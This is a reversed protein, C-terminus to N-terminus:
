NTDGSWVPYFFDFFGQQELEKIELIIAKTLDHFGKPTYTFPEKCKVQCRMCICTAFDKMWGKDFSDIWRELPSERNQIEHLTFSKQIDFAKYISENSFQKPVM